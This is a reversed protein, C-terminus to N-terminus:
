CITLVQPEKSMQIGREGGSPKEEFKSGGQWGSRRMRWMSLAMAPIFVLCMLTSMASVALAMIALGIQEGLSGKNSFSNVMSGVSGLAFCILFLFIPGCIIVTDVPDPAASRPSAPGKVKKILLISAFMCVWFSIGACLAIVGAVHVVPSHRQRGDGALLGFTAVPLVAFFLWYSAYLLCEVADTVALALSGRTATAEARPSSVLGEAVAM